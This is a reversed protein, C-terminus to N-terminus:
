GRLQRKYVDVSLANDDVYLQNDWLYDVIDNRSCIKGAHKFLYYLIQRKYVDLHTYSVASILTDLM